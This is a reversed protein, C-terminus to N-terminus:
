STFSRRQGGGRSRRSRNNRNGRPRGSHQQQKQAQPESSAEKKKPSFIGFIKAIFSKKEQEPASGSQTGRNGRRNNNSGGRRKGGNDNRGRGNGGPKRRRRNEGEGPSEAETVIIDRGMFERGSLELARAADKSEVMQVFGYGKSKGSRRDVIVVASEIEGYPSFLKKLEEDTTEFSLNGVFLKPKM